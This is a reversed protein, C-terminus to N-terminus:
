GVSIEPPASVNKILWRLGFAPLILLVVTFVILPVLAEAGGGRLFGSAIDVLDTAFRAAIVALLAAHSRLIFAALAVGAAMALNRTVYLEGFIGLTEAGWISPNLASAIGFFTPVIIEIAVIGWM